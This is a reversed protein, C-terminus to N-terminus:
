ENPRRKAGVYSVDYYTFTNTAWVDEVIGTNQYVKIQSYDIGGAKNPNADMYWLASGSISIYQGATSFDRGVITGRSINGGNLSLGAQYGNPPSAGSELYWLIAWTHLYFGTERPRYWFNTADWWGHTDNRVVNFPVVTYAGSAINVQPPSTLEVQLVPPSQIERTVLTNRRFLEHLRALLRGGYATPAFIPENGVPPLKPDFDNVNL